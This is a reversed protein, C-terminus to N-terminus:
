DEEVLRLVPRWGHHLQADSETSQDSHTININGRNLRYSTSTSMEQCWSARGNGGGVILDADSYMGQSGSGLSHELIGIDSEINDPYGWSKNIADEHIQCMLRNWESHHNVAGSFSSGITTKPDNSPNAARMLAIMYPKGAIMVGKDGYVCNATNIADWPISRRIPKKAVFLIEGKYAFKLWGATSNISTGQSIGCESALADGTILESAAVEGFFGEEINGAILMTNGPSGSPDDLKIPTGAVRNAGDVTITDETYPFVMYYYTEGGTLGVDTYGNSSYQNKTTNDVVLIGDDDSVPYSGEKRVIKTGQWEAIKLDDLYRDEPDTWM